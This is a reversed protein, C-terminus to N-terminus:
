CLLNCRLKLLDLRGPMWATIKTLRGKNYVVPLYENPMCM